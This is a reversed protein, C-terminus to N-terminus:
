KIKRVNFLARNLHGILDREGVTNERWNGTNDEKGAMQKFLTKVNELDEIIGEMTQGSLQQYEGFGNGDEWIQFIVAGKDTHNWCELIFNEHFLQWNIFGVVKKGESTEYKWKQFRQYSEKFKKEM